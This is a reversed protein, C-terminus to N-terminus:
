MTELTQSNVSKIKREATFTLVAPPFVFNGWNSYIAQFRDYKDSVFGSPLPNGVSFVCSKIVLHNCGNRILIEKKMENHSRQQWSNSEWVNRRHKYINKMTVFMRSGKLNPDGADQLYVPVRKAHSRAKDMNRIITVSIKMNKRLRDLRICQSVKLFKV